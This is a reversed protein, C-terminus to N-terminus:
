RRNFWGTSDATTHSCSGQLLWTFLVLCHLLLLLLLLLLLFLVFRLSGRCTLVKKTLEWKGSKGKAAYVQVRYNKILLLDKITNEFVMHSMNVSPIKKAGHYKVVGMTKFVTKAM